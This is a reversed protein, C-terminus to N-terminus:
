TVIDSRVLNKLLSLLLSPIQSNKVIDISTDNEEVKGKM